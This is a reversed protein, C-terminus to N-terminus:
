YTIDTIAGRAVNTEKGGGVRYLVYMTWGANPLEGMYTDNLM